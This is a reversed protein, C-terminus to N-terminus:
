YLVAKVIRAIKNALLPPVANGVQHLQQTRNGQFFYNDPFTQIRAAERVTFSRCQIPDPHIFYHGDKSIHSTITTAQKNGLQVRFRDSFKGTEWNAHQPRLGALRFDEHGKPSRDYAKAFSAAFLYRRLDSSMHGRTEHNLWVKLNHDEFWNNLQADNGKLSTYTKADFPHRLSGYNLTDTLNPKISKLVKVLADFGGVTKSEKLLEDLHKSVSSHWNQATDPEKSLRSRLKPLANIVDEVNVSSENTLQKPKISIDDRIGLLIVRHRAQPVGYNESRIVFDNANFKAPDMGPQFYSPTVLSHINYKYGSAMQNLAADPDSLDNLISHFIKHGNIKSSLIGKVNEMVFVSPKYAQIVNLYEKYLFHKPDEEAVYASKSQNRSRGVLSYAQCPPGGILVWPKTHDISAEKIIKNLELNGKITGLEIQRAEKGAMEWERYNCSDYPTESIGNCFNYYSTLYSNGKSKLMRFFARLKLTQYAYADMEASVLIKFSKGDDFSSFGEGLGGPGAFLDVIPIQNYKNM